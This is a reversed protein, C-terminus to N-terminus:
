RAEEPERIAYGEGRLIEAIADLTDANWEQGDMLTAIADLANRMAEGERTQKASAGQM